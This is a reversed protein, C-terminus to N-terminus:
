ERNSPSRVGTHGTSLENASAPVECTPAQAWSRRSFAAARGVLGSSMPKAGDATRPFFYGFKLMVSARCVVRLNEAWRAKSTSIMVCKPCM